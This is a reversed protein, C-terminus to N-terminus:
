GSSSEPDSHRNLNLALRVQSSRAAPVEDEGIEENQYFALPM